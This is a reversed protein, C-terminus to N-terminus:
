IKADTNAGKINAPSGLWEGRNVIISYVYCYPQLGSTVMYCHDQKRNVSSKINVNMGVGNM